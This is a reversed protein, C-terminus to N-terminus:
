RSVTRQVFHVCFLLAAAGCVSVLLAFVGFGAPVGLLPAALLGALVAGTVAVAVNLVIGERHLNTLYYSAAWGTLGGAVLWTVISM